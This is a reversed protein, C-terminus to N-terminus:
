TPRRASRRALYPQAPENQESVKQSKFKGAAMLSSCVWRIRQQDWALFWKTEVCDAYDKYTLTDRCTASFVGLRGASESCGIWPANGTKFSTECGGNCSSARAELSAIRRMVPGKPARGTTSSADASSSPGQATRFARRSVVRHEVQPSRHPRAAQKPAEVTIDPLPANSGTATQSASPSCLLLTSLIAVASPAVISSPMSM